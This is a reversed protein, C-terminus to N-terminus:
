LFSFFKKVCFIIPDKINQIVFTEFYDCLSEVESKTLEVKENETFEINM